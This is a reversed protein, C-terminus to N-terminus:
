LVIEVFGSTIQIAALDLSQDILATNGSTAIGTSSGDVADPVSM